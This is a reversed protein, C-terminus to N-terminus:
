WGPIQVVDQPRPFSLEGRQVQYEWRYFPHGGYESSFPRHAGKLCTFCKASTRFALLAEVLSLARGLLWGHTKDGESGLSGAVATAPPGHTGPEVGVAHEACAVKKQAHRPM